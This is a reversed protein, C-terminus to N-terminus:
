TPLPDTATAASPPNSYGKWFVPQFGHWRDFTRSLGYGVRHGYTFRRRLAWDSMEGSMPADSDPSAQADPNAPQPESGDGRREEKSRRRTKGGGSRASGSGRVDSGPLHPLSLPPSDHLQFSSCTDGRDGSLGRVPGSALVKERRRDFRHIRNYTFGFAVTHLLLALHAQGRGPHVM